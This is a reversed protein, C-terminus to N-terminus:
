PGYFLKQLRENPELSLIKIDFTLYIILVLIWEKLIQM